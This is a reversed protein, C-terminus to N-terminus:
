DRAEDITRRDDGCGKCVLKNLVIMQKVRVLWDDGAESLHARGPGKLCVCALACGVVLLTLVNLVESV